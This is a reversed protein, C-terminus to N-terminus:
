ENSDSRLKQGCKSCYNMDRYVTDRPIDLVLLNDCNGCSVRLTSINVQKRIVKMPISKDIIIELWSLHKWKYGYASPMNGNCCRGIHSSNERAGISRLADKRSKHIAIVNMDMDLQIVAKESYDKKILGNDRAHKMNEQHTCWELNEVRNDSKIGNIHNVNTKGIIPPLFATALLRHVLHKTAKNDKSLNVCLYRSAYHQALIRKNKDIRKVEGNSSVQYLSEYGVVDLWQEKSENTIIAKNM